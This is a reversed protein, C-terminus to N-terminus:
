PILISALSQWVPISAMSLLTSLLIVGSLFDRDLDYKDGIVFTMLAVPMSSQLLVVGGVTHSLHLSIAAVAAIAPMVLLKLSTLAVLPLKKQSFKASLSVGISLMIIGTTAQALSNVALNFPVPLKVGAL